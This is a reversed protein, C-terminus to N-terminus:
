ASARPDATARNTSEHQLGSPMARFPDRAIRAKPRLDTTECFSGSGPLAVKAPKPKAGRGRFVGLPDQGMVFWLIALAVPIACLGGLVVALVPLLPSEKEPSLSPINRPRVVEPAPGEAVGDEVVDGVDEFVVPTPAPPPPPPRPIRLPKRPSANPMRVDPSYEATNARAPGVSASDSPTVTFLTKCQRCRITKGAFAPKMAFTRGCAPCSRADRGDIVCRIAIPATVGTRAHAASPNALSVGTTDHPICFVGKCERCRIRKGLVRPSVQFLRDCHPCALVEM